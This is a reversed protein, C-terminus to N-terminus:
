VPDILRLVDYVPKSAQYWDPDGFAPYYHVIFARLTNSYQDQRRIEEAMEAVRHPPVFIHLTPM